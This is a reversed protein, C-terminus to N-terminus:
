KKDGKEARKMRDIAVRYGRAEADEIEKKVWRFIESFLLMAERLQRRKKKKM